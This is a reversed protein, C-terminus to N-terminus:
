GALACFVMVRGNTSLNMMALAGLGMVVLVAVIALATLPAVVIGAVMQSAIVAFVLSIARNETHTNGECQAATAVFMSVIAIVFITTFYAITM